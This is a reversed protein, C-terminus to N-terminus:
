VNRNYNRSANTDIREKKAPRAGAKESVMIVYIRGKELHINPLFFVLESKVKKANHCIIYLCYKTRISCLSHIVIHFQGRQLNGSVLIGGLQGTHESVTNGLNGDAAAAGGLRHSVLLLDLRQEGVGVALVLDDEFLTLVGRFGALQHHAYDQGATLSGAAVVHDATQVIGQLGGVLFIFQIAELAAGGAQQIVVEDNEAILVDVLVAVGAAEVDDAGATGLQLGLLLKLDNDGVAALVTDVRQDDDAAVVGVGVGSNQSLVASGVVGADLDDAAGLGDVAVQLVLIDLAGEAEVGGGLGVGLDDAVNLTVGVGGLLVPVEDLDHATGGRMHSQLAGQLGLGVDAQDALFHSGLLHGQSLDGVVNGIGHGGTGLAAHVEADGDDGLANHLENGLEGHQDGLDVLQQGTLLGSLKASQGGPLVLVGEDFVAQGLLGHSDEGDQGLADLLLQEQLTVGVAVHLNGEDLGLLQEGSQHGLVQLGPLGGSGVVALEGGLMVEQAVFAAASEGGVEVSVVAVGQAVVGGHQNLVTHGAVQGLDGVQGLGGLLPDGTTHGDGLHHVHLAAVTLVLGNDTLSQHLQVALGELIEGGM